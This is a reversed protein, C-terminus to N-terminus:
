DREPRRFRPKLASWADPYATDLREAASAFATPDLMFRTEFMFAMTNTLKEPELTQHSAKDFAEGDPGHALFGNHLSMGGPVFGGPKADYVGTILGMFESMLNTHYWPPRFTDEAVLWREPFIVFDANAVGPTDSPSTLVTNISPDPHDYAVAGVPCFRRLDYKYPAYDGHWAVVDLPSRTLRTFFLRGGLKLYLEGEEEVDEYAATPYLFDRENALANAGIPGREPLVFAAGYTECVYGRAPGELLEVRFKVGRPVVAVELPSVVLIGLETCLRLVGTQPVILMEGDGNSLYRREMSQNAVYVHSAMGAQLAANGCTAITALGDFFDVRGETPIPLPRWRLQGAPLRSERCPATRILGSDVEAFRNGERVSPLIRYTWSRRNVARPATFAAGSLQEAYLGLPARQPSNRGIPLAGPEASTSHTNGFGPMYGFDPKAEGIPGGSAVHEVPPV